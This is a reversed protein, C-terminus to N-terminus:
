RLEDDRDRNGRCVGAITHHSGALPADADNREIDWVRELGRCLEHRNSGAVQRRPIDDHEKQRRKGSESSPPRLREGSIWYGAQDSGLTWVM